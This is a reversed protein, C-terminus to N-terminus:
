RVACVQMQTSATDIQNLQWSGNGATVRGRLKVVRMGAALSPTGVSLSKSDAVSVGVELRADDLVAVGDVDLRTINRAQDTNNVCALQMNVLWRESANASLTAEVGVDMFVGSSTTFTGSINVFALEVLEPM